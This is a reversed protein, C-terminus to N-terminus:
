EEAGIDVFITVKLLKGKLSEEAEPGICNVLCTSLNELRLGDVVFSESIGVVANRIEALLQHPTPGLRGEDAMESLLAWTRVLLNHHYGSNYMPEADPAGSNTCSERYPM